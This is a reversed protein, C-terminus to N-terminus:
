AFSRLGNSEVTAPLLRGEDDWGRFTYYDSLLQDIPPPDFDLDEAQKKRRRLRIPLTDDKATVGRRNNIMRELQFSRTGIALFGEPDIGRGTILNYWEVFHSLTAANLTQTFNCWVMSDRMRMLDQLIASQKAKGDRQRGPFPEPYGLEELTTHNEYLHAVSSMHCGGRNCTAYGLAQGWSFRPDHMGLELGKVEIAYESANGGIRAVAARTGDGLLAGVAGQRMAMRRVIEAYTEPRRFGIELGDLDKATLLGKEVCENAFALTGSVSITDVGLRNCIENLHAVSELNDNNQLSGFGGLTEYEPGEIVGGTKYPGDKVEVLRGCLIPCRNCGARKVQITEALTTGTLKKVLEPARAGRWNDIPLSGGKHIGDMAGPTGYTRFFQLREKMYPLRETVAAKLGAADYAEPLTKGADTIIVAKLNKSGMVAGMGGRGAVRTHRGDHVVNAMRNLIEGAPGIVAASTKKGFRAKIADDSDFTDQGWLWAADEIRATDGDVVICVPTESAGTVVIGDLHSERLRRGFTGGSISSCFIGTLPSLAIVAHRSGAPVPTGTFPGSMFIVPNDPGLPDTSGDILRALIAAGLNSGGVFAEADETGVPHFAVTRHTLDVWALRDHYGYM